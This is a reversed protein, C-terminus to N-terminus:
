KSKPFGLLLIDLVHKYNLNYDLYQLATQTKKILRASRLQNPSDQLLSNELSDILSNLFEVAKEKSDINDHIYKLRQGPSLKFIQNLDFDSSKRSQNKEKIIQCRSFITSLINKESSSVLIITLFSPAEELYKLLANQAEITSNNFSRIIVLANKSNYPKHIGKKIINKADDIGLASESNFDLLDFASVDLGKKIKDLEEEIFSNNPSIILYSQM